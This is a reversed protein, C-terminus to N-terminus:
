VRATTRRRPRRNGSHRSRRRGQLAAWTTDALVAIGRRLRTPNTLGDIAVVRRVGPVALAAAEDIQLLKAGHRPAHAISARLTAEPLRFDLGYLPRGTVIAPVDVGGIRTGVLRYRDLSKPVIEAAEVTARSADGLLEVYAVRRASRTHVVAASETSCASAPIGWRAAAAKVLLLRATAAARRAPEWGSYLSDSGGAGQGEPFAAPDLDAQLVKIASWPLDLEEAVVMPLSTRTGQGMDPLPAYLTVQGDPAIRLFGNPAFPVASPPEAAFAAELRLPFRLLLAGGATLTARLLARRDLGAASSPAM